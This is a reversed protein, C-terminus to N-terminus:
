CHRSGALLTLSLAAAVNLLSGQGVCVWHLVSAVYRMEVCGLYLIRSVLFSERAFSELSRKCSAAM